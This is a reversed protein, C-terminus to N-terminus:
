PSRVVNAEDIVKYVFSHFFEAKVHMDVGFLLWVDPENRIFEHTQMFGGFSFGNCRTFDEIDNWSFEM